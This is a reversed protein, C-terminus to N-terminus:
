TQFGLNRLELFRCCLVVFVLRHTDNSEPSDCDEHFHDTEIRLQGGLYCLSIRERANVAKRTSVVVEKDFMLM